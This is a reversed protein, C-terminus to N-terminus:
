SIVLSSGVKWWKGLKESSQIFTKKLPRSGEEGSEVKGFKKM